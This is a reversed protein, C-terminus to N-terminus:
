PLADLSNRRSSLSMVCDSCFRLFFMLFINLISAYITFKEFVKSRMKKELSFTNIVEILWNVGHFFCRCVTDKENKSLTSFGDFIEESPLCLACGLLADIDDM